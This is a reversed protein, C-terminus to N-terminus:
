GSGEGERVRVLHPREAAATVMRVHASEDLHM